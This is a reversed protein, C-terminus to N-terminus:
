LGVGRMFKAAVAPVNKVGTIAAALERIIQCCYPNYILNHKATFM